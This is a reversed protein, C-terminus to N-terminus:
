ELEYICAWDFRNNMEDYHIFIGSGPMDEIDIPGADDTNWILVSDDDKAKEWKGLRKVTEYFDEGRYSYTGGNVTLRDVTETIEDPKMNCWLRVKYITASM